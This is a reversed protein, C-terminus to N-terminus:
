MNIFKEFDGINEIYSTAAVSDGEYIDFGYLETEPIENGDEDLEFSSGIFKMKMTQEHEQIVERGNIIMRQAITRRYTYEDGEIVFGISKLDENLQEFRTM